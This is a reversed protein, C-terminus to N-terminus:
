TASTRFNNQYSAVEEGINGGRCYVFNHCAVWLWFHHCTLIPMKATPKLAALNLDM